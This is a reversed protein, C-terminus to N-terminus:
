TSICNKPIAPHYTEGLTRNVTSKLANQLIPCTSTITTHGICNSRINADKSLFCNNCKLLETKRKNPCTKSLHDSSCYLCVVKESDKLTCNPSGKKHHFEQCKYCQVIHYRNTVRCSSMGIYVKNGQSFLVKKIDPDVKIIAYCFNEDAMVAQKVGPNKSIIAERLSKKDLKQFDEKRIGNIKLKPYLTKLNRDQSEIKYIDGLNTAAKDRLDKTPFFLIGKGDKSRLAKSVPINKLKPEINKQVVKNWSDKTFNEETDKPKILITHATTQKFKERDEKNNTESNLNNKTINSNYQSNGRESNLHNLRNEFSQSLNEMEKRIERCLELKLDSKIESLLKTIDNSDNPPPIKVTCEQCYWFVGSYKKSKLSDFFKKDMQICDRHFKQSCLNCNIYDYYDNNSSVCNEATCSLDDSTSPTQSNNGRKNM